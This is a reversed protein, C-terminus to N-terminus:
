QLGASPMRLKTVVGRGMAMGFREALRQIFSERVTYDVIEEAGIVDRAVTGASGYDDVLGLEKAKAGSWFLGSFIEKNPKLAIGRGQKVADIFQVHIENLMKQAHRRSKSDLPSFPDLMGKNEGATLLRREVGLKKM